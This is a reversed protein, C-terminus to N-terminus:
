IPLEPLEDSVGEAEYVMGVVSDSVQERQPSQKLLPLYTQLDIKEDFEIGLLRIRGLLPACYKVRGLLKDSKGREKFLIYCRTGAEVDEGHYVGIGKESLDRCRVTFPTWDGQADRFLAYVPLANPSPFRMYERDSRAQPDELMEDRFHHGLHSAVQEWQADTYGTTDLFEQSLLKGAM